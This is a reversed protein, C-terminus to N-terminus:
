GVPGLSDVSSEECKVDDSHQEKKHEDKYFPEASFM